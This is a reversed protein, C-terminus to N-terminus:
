AAARRRAARVRQAAWASREESTMRAYRAKAAASMNARAEASKPKGKAAASMNARGAASKPKGKTAASIKAAWAARDEDTWAAYRAKQAASMNARVAASYASYEKDTMRAFRAKAAASMNARGAASRPKRMAARTEASYVANDGGTTANYGNPLLTNLRAIYNRELWDAEAVSGADAIKEWKIKDVGFERIACHFPIQSGRRMDKEHDHRRRYLKQGTRGIYSKGNPATAKYVIM